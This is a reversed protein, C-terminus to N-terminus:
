FLLIYQSADVIIFLLILPIKHCLVERYLFHVLFLRLYFMDQQTGVGVDPGNVRMVLCHPYERMDLACILGSEDLLVDAVDWPEVFYETLM